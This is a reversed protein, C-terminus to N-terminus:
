FLGVKLFKVCFLRIKIIEVCIKRFIPPNLGGKWFEPPTAVGGVGGVKAGRYTLVLYKKTLYLYFYKSMEM